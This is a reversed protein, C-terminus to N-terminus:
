QWNFKIKPCSVLHTFLSSVVKIVSKRSWFSWCSLSWTYPFNKPLNGEIQAFNGSTLVKRQHTKACSGWVELIRAVAHEELQFKLGEKDLNTKVLRLDVFHSPPMEQIVKKARSSFFVFHDTLEQQFSFNLCWRSRREPLRLNTIIITLSWFLNLSIHVVPAKHLQTKSFNHDCFESVQAFKAFPSRVFRQPSKLRESASSKFIHTCTQVCCDFGAYNGTIIKM